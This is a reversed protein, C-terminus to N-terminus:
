LGLRHPMIAHCGNRVDPLIEAILLHSTRGAHSLKLGKKRLTAISKRRKRRTEVTELGWSPQNDARVELTLVHSEFFRLVRLEIQAPRQMKLRPIIGINAAAPRLSRSLVAIHVDDTDRETAILELVAFRFIFNGGFAHGPAAAPNFSNM